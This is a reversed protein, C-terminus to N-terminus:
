SGLGAVPATHGIEPHEDALMVVDGALALEAHGIRGDPLEIPERRLRAGLVDIYWALAARADAVALYPTVGALATAGEVSVALPEPERVTGPMETGEPRALATEIRRRLRATLDPGPDLPEVPTALAEFPDTM